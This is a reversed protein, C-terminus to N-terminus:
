FWLAAVGAVANRPTASPPSKCYRRTTPAAPTDAPRPRQPRSFCRKGLTRTRKDQPDFIAIAL